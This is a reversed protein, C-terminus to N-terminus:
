LFRRLIGMTYEVAGANRLLVKSGREGDLMAHEPHQLWHEITDQLAQQNDVVILANQEQLHQCISPNNFLSPGMVIPKSYLAAELANHGGKEAFSGGIFAISCISYCAKLWGMADVVVCDVTIHKALKSKSLPIPTSLPQPPDLNVQGQQANITKFLDSESVKVTKHGSAKIIQHVDDFRHPHRPVVLLVLDTHQEKLLKYSQLLMKEEPDHSSAVLLIPRDRLKYEEILANGLREDAEDPLIDFKMNRSLRLQKKFVGYALFNEFSESSQACIYDMQRLTPRFLWSVKRYGALSKTTMRANVLCVPVKQKLCQAVMNPWIEVETILSLNPDIARFFRRMCWPLDIPLYCHQVKDKFLNYAHIAGTVSSTTVTIPQDPHEQLLMTILGSAANLEGVSVCHIHVGHKKFSAPTWGFREAFRRNKLNPHALNLKRRNLLLLLPVVLALM